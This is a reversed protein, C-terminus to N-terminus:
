GRQIRELEDKLSTLAAKYHTWVDRYGRYSPLDYITTLAAVVEPTCPVATGRPYIGGQLECRQSGLVQTTFSQFQFRGLLNSMRFRTTDLQLDMEAFTQESLTPSITRRLRQNYEIKLQDELVRLEAQTQATTNVKTRFTSPTQTNYEIDTDFDNANLFGSIIVQDPSDLFRLSNTTSSYLPGYIRNLRLVDQQRERRREHTFRYGGLALSVLTGAGIYAVANVVIGYAAVIGGIAVIVWSVSDETHLWVHVLTENYFTM